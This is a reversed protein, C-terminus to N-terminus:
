IEETSHERRRINPHSEERYIWLLFGSLIMSIAAFSFTAALTPPSASGLPASAMVLTEGSVTYEPRKLGKAEQALQDVSKESQALPELLKLHKSTAKGIRAVQEFLHDKLKRSEM